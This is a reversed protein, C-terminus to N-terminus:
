KWNASEISRRFHEATKMKWEFPHEDRWKRNELKKANEFEHIYDYMIEQQRMWQEPGRFAEFTETFGAFGFKGTLLIEDSELDGMVCDHMIALIQREEAVAFMCDLCAPMTNEPCEKFALMTLDRWMETMKPSLPRRQANLRFPDDQRTELIIPGSGWLEIAERQMSDAIYAAYIIAAANALSVRVTFTRSGEFERFKRDNKAQRDWAAGKNAHKVEPNLEGDRIAKAAKCAAVAKEAKEYQKREEITMWKLKAAKDDNAKAGQTMSVRRIYAENMADSDESLGEGRMSGEFEAEDVGSSSDEGPHV